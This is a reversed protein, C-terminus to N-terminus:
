LVVIVGVIGPQRPACHILAKDGVDMQRGYKSDMRSIQEQDAQKRMESSEAEQLEILV